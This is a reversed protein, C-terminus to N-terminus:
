KPCDGKALAVALAPLSLLGMGAGAFEGKLCDGKGAKAAEESFRQDKSVIAIGTAAEAREALLPQSGSERIARRTAENDLLRNRPASAPPTPAPAVAATPEAVLTLAPETAPATTAQRPAAAPRTAAPKAAVPEPVPALPVWVLTGVREIPLTVMWRSTLWVMIVALHLGAILLLATARPPTPSPLAHSM